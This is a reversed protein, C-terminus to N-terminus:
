NVSSETSTSSSWSCVSLLHAVPSVSAVKGWELRSLRPISSHSIRSNLKRGVEEKTQNRLFYRRWDAEAVGQVQRWEVRCTFHIAACLSQHMLWSVCRISLSIHESGKLRNKDIKNIRQQLALCFRSWKIVWVCIHAACVHCLLSGGVSIWVTSAYTPCIGPCLATVSCRARQANRVKVEGYRLFVRLSMLKSWRRHSPAKETQEGAVNPELLWGKEPVAIFRSKNSLCATYLRLSPVMEKQRGVCQCLWLRGKWSCMRIGAACVLGLVGQQTLFILATCMQPIDSLLRM